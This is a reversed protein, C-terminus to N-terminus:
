ENVEDKNKKVFDDVLYEVDAQTHLIKFTDKSIM